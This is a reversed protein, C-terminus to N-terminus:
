LSRLLSRADHGQMRTWVVLNQAGFTVALFLALEGLPITGMSLFGLAVRVAIAAVWLALTLVTGRTMWTGDPRQWMRMTAARLFGLVAAAGLNLVFLTIALSTEPPAKAVAQLGVFGGILPLLVLRRPQIPTATFQRVIFFVAVAAVLLYNSATFNMAELRGVRAEAAM